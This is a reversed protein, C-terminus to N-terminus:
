SLHHLLMSRNKWETHQMQIKEARPYIKNAKQIASYVNNACVHFKIKKGCQIAYFHYKYYYNM